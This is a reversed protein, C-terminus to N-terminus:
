RTAGLDRAWPYFLHANLSAPAGTIRDNMFLVSAYNVLPIAVTDIQYAQNQVKTMLAARKDPDPEARAQDIWQRVAPNHYGSSNFVGGPVLTYEAPNIPDPFDQYNLMSPFLDYAKQREKDFGTIVWQAAPMEVIDVRLGIVQAQSKLYASLQKAVPDDANSLLTMPAIGGSGRSSEAVLRAAEALDTGSAEPLSQYHRQYTQAGYGWTAPFYSSKIPAAAGHFIVRAIAARDLILSLARRIRPDATPGPKSTFEVTAYALSKGLYVKGVPLSRLRTIAGPPLEYTGDIEGSQLGNSLTTSNTIFKFDITAVKPRHATDWYNDNRSLALDYGPTWAKLQYPGTCMVGGSATGYQTGKAEVYRKQVIAAGSTALFKDFTTDPKRLTITVQAPGTATISKVNKVWEVWFSGRAPDLHASLSYIVDDTTVPDGNSFQVGPRLTAVYTTNDSTTVSSALAPEYGLDPTVRLLGECLNSLVTNESFASSALWSLTRPEGYPLAWTVRDMQGAAAPTTTVDLPLPASSASTVPRGSCGAAVLVVVMAAVAFAHGRGGTM